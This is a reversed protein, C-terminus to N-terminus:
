AAAEILGVIKDKTQDLFDKDEAIDAFSKIPEIPHFESGSEIHIASGGLRFYIYIYKENPLTMALVEYSRIQGTHYGVGDENFAWGSSDISKRELGKVEQEDDFFDDNATYLLSLIEEKGKIVKEEVKREVEIQKRRNEIRLKLEENERLEEDSMDPSIINKIRNPWNESKSM